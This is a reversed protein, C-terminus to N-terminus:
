NNTAPAAPASLDDTARAVLYTERREVSVQRVLVAAREAHTIAKRAEAVFRRGAPTVEVWRKTRRFLQADVDKELQQIQRSLSPQSTNVREAAATFNLTEAVAVAYRLVRLEICVLSGPRFAKSPPDYASGIRESYSSAQCIRSLQM